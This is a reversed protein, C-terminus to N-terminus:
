QYSGHAASALVARPAAFLTGRYDLFGVREKEELRREGRVGKGCCRRAQDVPEDHSHLSTIIYRREYSAVTHKQLANKPPTPMASAASAHKRILESKLM